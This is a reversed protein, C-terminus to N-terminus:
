VEKILPALLDAPSCGFIHCVGATYSNPNNGDDAPAWKQITEEVTLGRDAFLQVQTDCAVWGDEITDFSAFSRIKGDAGIINKRISNKQGKYILDGPNNLRQPLTQHLTSKVFFGEMQGIAQSFQRVKSM